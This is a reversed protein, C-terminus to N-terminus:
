APNRTLARYLEAHKAASAQWTLATARCRARDLLDQRNVNGNAVALMTDIWATSDAPDLQIGADGVVEPLSTASSAIPFTGCAMAELPPMGFGEYRSPYLLALSHHYLAHLATENPHECADIRPTLGLIHILWKEDATLPPGAIRLRVQKNLSCFRAFAQLLFPFNKYTSRGGVYLFYPREFVEGPSPPATVPFSGGHYIVSTRGSAEPFFELLDDETHKSVCVIHAAGAIASRQAAITREAYPELTPHRAAILDHFTVVIPCRVDSFRLSGTLGYYTPHFIQARSLEHRRWWATQLPHSWRRPRLTSRALARLQPHSPLPCGTESGLVVPCWDSPLHSILETFYRRIGGPNSWRFIHGDYAINM